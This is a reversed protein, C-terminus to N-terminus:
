PQRDHEPARESPVPGGSGPEVNRLWWEPPVERSHNAWVNEFSAQQEAVAQGDSTALMAENLGWPGWASFHLNQSGAVVVRGDVTLAKTHMNLTVYRAEFRDELGRRRAELRMLAVGSRNAARDAGYDVMLARVRVGREMAELVARFYTPWRSPPCDDPNLYAYWCSLGPSFEAQMLDLGQRAAGFLALLARDSQDFGPRRYLVFARARGAPRLQRAQAPHTPAEPPVLTCVAALTDVAAGAPCSLQQSNRWLDDFVAVGDQAAPGRVRLGLDHLDRGGPQTTPLHWDTYNYGAITLDEGDIVHLKVHSHPFYRYNALALHWRAAPDNLPVGLRTLDDLLKLMQTAGDPRQLDPFGGLAVRVTMGSPYADPDAAVKRYLDRVAQAFTWGPHGEGAHWEMSALLVETRAARIQSATVDFADPQQPTGPTRLFGAFANGCSHDPRGNATTVQWLALELPDTPAPCTWGAANLPAPPRLPGLGLPVESAGAGGWLLVLLLLLCRSM